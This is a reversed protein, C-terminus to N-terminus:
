QVLPVFYAYIVYGKFYQFSPWVPFTSYSGFYYFSANLPVIYLSPFFFVPSISVFFSM